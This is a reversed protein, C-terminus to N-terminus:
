ADGGEPGNEAPPPETNTPSSPKPPKLLLKDESPPIRFFVIADEQIGDENIDKDVRAELHDNPKIMQDNILASLPTVVRKELTRILPRAGFRQDSMSERLILDLAPPTFTLVFAPAKGRAVTRAIRSQVKAIENQLIQEYGSHMLFHFVVLRDLRNLFEPALEREAKAKVTAYIRKNIGAIEEDTMRSLDKRPTQGATAFGLKGSFEKLIEMAGLNGTLIIISNTFDIEEGLNTRIRGKDLIKLLINAFTSGGHWSETLLAKEAEDFLVVRPAKGGTFLPPTDHGVYSPPAGILTTIAHDLSGSLGGCDITWISALEVREIKLNGKHMPCVDPVQVVGARRDEESYEVDCQQYRPCRWVIKKAFCNALAEAAFTKGTGTPGFFALVAIPHDPNKMGSFARELARTIERIARDQGILQNKLRSEIKRTPSKGDKPPVLKKAM